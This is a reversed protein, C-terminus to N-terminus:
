GPWPAEAALLGLHRARVLVAEPSRALATALEELPTQAMVRLTPDLLMWMPSESGDDGLAGYLRSLAGDLDLFWRLGRLDKVGTALQPDRVVVFARAHLDDFLSQSAALAKLAQAARPQDLPLFALLVYRGAVTDFVYEPNSPTAAKFWPAPEGTTLPM